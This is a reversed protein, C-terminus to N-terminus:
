IPWFTSRPWLIKAVVVLWTAPGRTRANELLSAPRRDRSRGRRWGLFLVMTNLTGLLYRSNFFLCDGYNYREFVMARADFATLQRIGFQFYCSGTGMANKFLRCADPKWHLYRGEASFEIGNDCLLYTADQRITKMNLSKELLSDFISGWDQGTTQSFSVEKLVGMAKCGLSILAVHHDRSLNHQFSRLVDAAEIRSSFTVSSNSGYCLVNYLHNLNSTRDRWTKVAQLLAAKVRPHFDTQQYAESEPGFVVLDCRFSGLEVIAILRQKLSKMPIRSPEAHTDVPVTELSGHFRAGTRKEYCSRFKISFHKGFFPIRGWDCHDHSVGVFLADIDAHRRLPGSEPEQQTWSSSRTLTSRLSPLLSSLPSFNEPSQQM